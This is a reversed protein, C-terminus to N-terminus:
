DNKLANKLFSISENKAKARIENVTSFDIPTEILRSIKEEDYSTILRDQLDFMNILSTFRDAGRGVNVVTIFPVNFIISFVTGHFSDTVVFDAEAFGQLWDEVAPYVCGGLGKPGCTYFNKKPMPEIVDDLRVGLKSAILAKIDDNERSADLIYAMLKKGSQKTGCNSKLLALYDEKDLLMTPDLTHVADVGFYYKCLGVGCDERVSIADFDKLLEAARRTEEESFEWEKTGFSASYAIRKVDQGVTFDLFYNMLYPSYLPRWVQDSGVIYTDFRYKRFEEKTKSYIPETTRINERIFRDTNERIKSVERASPYYRKRIPGLWRKIQCKIAYKVSPKPMKRDETLVDHGMRKLVTQLSYAQLLGGYNTHLPQTLICIKM